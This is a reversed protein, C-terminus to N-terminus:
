CVSLARIWTGRKKYYSEVTTCYFRVFSHMQKSSQVEHSINFGGLVQYLSLGSPAPQCKGLNLTGMGLVHWFVVLPLHHPLWHSFPQLGTEVM